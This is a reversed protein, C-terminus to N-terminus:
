AVDGLKLLEEKINSSFFDMAVKIYNLDGFNICFKYLDDSDKVFGKSELYYFFKSNSQLKNFISKTAQNVREEISGDVFGLDHLNNQYKGILGPIRADKSLKYNYAFYLQYYLFYPTDSLELQRLASAMGPYRISNSDAKNSLPVIPLVKVVNDEEYLGINMYNNPLGSLMYIADYFCLINLATYKDLIKTDIVCKLLELGTYKKFLIQESLYCSNSHVFGNREVPVGMEELFDFTIDEIVNNSM